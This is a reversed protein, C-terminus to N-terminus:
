GIRRLFATQLASTPYALRPYALRPYALRPCALRPYALRPCALRPYALRPCALRPYALRPYAETHSTDAYNKHTLHRCLRQTHPTQMTRTHSTDAYDKHTLHRCLGQTHPINEGTSKFLVAGSLNKASKNRQQRAGPTCLVANLQLKLDM